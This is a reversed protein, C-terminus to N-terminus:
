PPTSGGQSPSHHQALDVGAEGLLLTYQAESRVSTLMSRARSRMGGRGALVMGRRYQLPMAYRRVADLVRDVIRDALVGSHDAGTPADLPADLPEVTVPGVTRAALHRPRVALLPITTGESARAAGARGSPGSQNKTRSINRVGAIANALRNTTTHMLPEPSRHNASKNTGHSEHNAQDSM